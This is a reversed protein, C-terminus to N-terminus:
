GRVEAHGWSELVKCIATFDSGSGFMTQTVAMMERVAAGVVMPVGLTEAEDVCLRVDKYALGTEFGFDFTGPLVARPFKDQTASNRGSGANIADLMVQPSLGAKVGMVMVESTLALAGVSLLNNALKLTQAQGPGDGARFIKGFIKMADIVADYSDDACSVMVALTGNTAGSVGGSVPADAYVIGKAALGRAVEVAMRPGITSLDIVRRVASGGAIGGEGLLVDHVAQPNPLSLFVTEAQDALDRLSGAARAGHAVLAAVAPAHVDHVVLTRGADLCRRSMPHGMKGLGVFGYVANSM